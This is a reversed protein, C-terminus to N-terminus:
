HNLASAARASSGSETGAGVHFGMVMQVELELPDLESEQGGRTGPMCITCKVHIHAFCECVYIPNQQNEKFLHASTRSLCLVQRFHVLGREVAGTTIIIIIYFHIISRFLLVLM